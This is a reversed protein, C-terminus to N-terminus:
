IRIIRRKDYKINNRKCLNIIPEDAENTTTAVVIDDIYKSLKVREILIQLMPKGGAPLLVKGPLRSSTM